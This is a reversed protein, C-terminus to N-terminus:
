FFFVVSGAFTVISRANCSNAVKREIPTRPFYVGGVTHALGHLELEAHGISRTTPILRSGMSLSIAAM